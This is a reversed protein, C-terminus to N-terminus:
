EVGDLAECQMAVIMCKGSVYAICVKITELCPYVNNHGRAYYRFMKKVSLVQFQKSRITPEYAANSQVCVGPRNTRAANLMGLSSCTRYYEIDLIQTGQPGTLLITINEM